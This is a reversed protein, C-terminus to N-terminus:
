WDFVFFVTFFFFYFKVLLLNFSFFRFVRWSLFVLKLVNSMKTNKNSIKTPLRLEDFSFINLWFYSNETFLKVYFRLNYKSSVDQQFRRPIIFLGQIEFYFSLKRFFIVSKSKKPPDFSAIEVVLAM